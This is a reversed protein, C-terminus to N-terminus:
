QEKFISHAHSVAVVESELGPCVYLAPVGPAETKAAEAEQDGGLWDWLRATAEAWKRVVSM